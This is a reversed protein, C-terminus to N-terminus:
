YIGYEDDELKQLPYSLTEYIVDTSTTVDKVRVGDESKQAFYYHCAGAVRHKRSYVEISRLFYPSHTNLLIHMGFEKQLLVIIEAFLLQWEPHLHIEPEDLILTGNQQVAGNSILMKLIAFMKMGASINRIDVDEEIGDVHYSLGRRTSQTKIEGPVAMSLKNFVSHLKQNIIAEDVATPEDFFDNNYIDSVLHQRHSAFRREGDDPPGLLRGDDVVYPDDIYIAEAQLSVGEEQVHVKNNAISVTLYDNKVKLKVLAANSTRMNNIQKNFESNFINDLMVEVVSDDPARLIQLIREFSYEVIDDVNEGNRLNLGQACALIEARLSENDSVLTEANLVMRDAAIKLPDLRLMGGRNRFYADQIARMISNAKSAAVRMNLRSFGNFICWLTKGITSKGADNPGAIVTIGDIVIDASSIKGVNEIHLRM